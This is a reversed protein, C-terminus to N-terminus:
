VNYANILFNIFSSNFIDMGNNDEDQYVEENSNNFSELLLEYNEEMTGNLKISVERNNLYRTVKKRFRM